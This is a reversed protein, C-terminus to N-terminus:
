RVGVYGGTMAGVGGGTDTTVGHLTGVVHSAPDGDVSDFFGGETYGGIILLVPPDDPENFGLPSREINGFMNANFTGSEADIQGNALTVKGRLEHNLPDGDVWNTMTGDLKENSFDATIRADSTGTFGGFNAAAVGQYTAQGALDVLNSRETFDAQSMLRTYEESRDFNKEVRADTCAALSAGITICVPLSFTRLSM